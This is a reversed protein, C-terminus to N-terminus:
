EKWKAGVAQYKNGRIPKIHGGKKYGKEKKSGYEKVKNCAKKYDKYSGLVKYTAM